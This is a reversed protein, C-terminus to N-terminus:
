RRPDEEEAVQAPVGERKAVVVFRDTGSIVEEVSENVHDRRVAFRVADSRVKEFEARTIALVQECDADGCECLIRLYRADGDGSQAQEVIDENIERTAAENRVVREERSSM